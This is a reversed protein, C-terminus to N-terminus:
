EGRRKYRRTEIDKGLEDANKLTFTVRRNQSRGEDTDNPAM